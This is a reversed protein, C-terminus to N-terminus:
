FNYDLFRLLHQNHPHINVEYTMDEYKKTIPNEQHNLILKLKEAGLRECSVFTKKNFTVLPSCNYEDGIFVVASMDNVNTNILWKSSPTHGDKTAAEMYSTISTIGSNFCLSVNDYHRVSPRYVGIQVPTKAYHSLQFKWPRGQERNDKLVEIGILINPVTTLYIEARYGLPLEFVKAEGVGKIKKIESKLTDLMKLGM